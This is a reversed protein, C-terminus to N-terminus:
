VVGTSGAHRSVLSWAMPTAAASLVARTAAPQNTWETQVGSKGWSDYWVTRKNVGTRQWMLPSWIVQQETGWLGRWVLEPVGQRERQPGESVCRQGSGCPVPATSIDHLIFPLSSRLTKWQETEVQAAVQIASYEGRGRGGGGQTLCCHNLKTSKLWIQKCRVVLSHADYLQEFTTEGSPEKIIPRQTFNSWVTDSM